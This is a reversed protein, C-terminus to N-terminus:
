LGGGGSQNTPTKPAFLGSLGNPMQSMGSGNNAGKGIGKSVLKGKPNFVFTACKSKTGSTNIMGALYVGGTGRMWCYFWVDEKSGSLTLKSVRSPEGFKALVDNQSAGIPVDSLQNKSIATGESTSNVSALGCGSLFIVSLLLMVPLVFKKKM